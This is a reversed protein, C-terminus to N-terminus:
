TVSMEEGDDLGLKQVFSRNALPMADHEIDTVEFSEVTIQEILTQEFQGSEIGLEILKEGEADIRNIAAKGGILWRSQGESWVTRSYPRRARSCISRSSRASVSEARTSADSCNSFTAISCRSICASVSAYM